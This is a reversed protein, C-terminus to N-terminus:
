LQTNLVTCCRVGPSSRITMCCTGSETERYTSHLSLFYCVLESIIHANISLRELGPRVPSVKSPTEPTRPLCSTRGPPEPPSIPCGGRGSFCWQQVSVSQSARARAERRGLCSQPRWPPGSWGPAAAPPRRCARSARGARRAGRGAGGWGVGRGARSGGRRASGGRTLGADAGRCGRTCPRKAVVPPPTPRPLASRPTGMWRDFSPGIVAPLKIISLVHWEGARKREDAKDGLCM